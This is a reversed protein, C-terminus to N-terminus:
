SAQALLQDVVLKAAGSLKVREFGDSDYGELRARCADLFETREPCDVAPHNGDCSEFGTYEGDEFHLVCDDNDGRVTVAVTVSSGADILRWARQGRCVRDDAGKHLEVSPPPELTATVLYNEFSFPLRFKSM